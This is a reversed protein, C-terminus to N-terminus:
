SKGGDHHPCRKITHFVEITCGMQNTIKVSYTTTVKPCLIIASTGTQDHGEPDPESWLYHYQGKCHGVPGTPELICVPLPDVKLTIEEGTESCECPEKRIGAVIICDRVIVTDSRASSCSNKNFVEVCYNGGDMAEITEGSGFALGNYYWQYFYGSEPPTGCVPPVATLWVSTNFCKVLPGAPSIAPKSPPKIVPITVINSYAPPCIMTPSQVRARWCIKDVVCPDVPPYTLGFLDNTYQVPSIVGPPLSWDGDCEECDGSCSGLAYEWAISSGSLGDHTLTLAADMGWCLEAPNNDTREIGASILKEVVLRVSKQLPPSCAHNGIEVCIDYTGPEDITFRPNQISPNDFTGGQPCFWSFSDEVLPSDPDFGLELPSDFDFAPECYEYPSNLLQGERTVTIEGAKPHGWIGLTVDVANPCCGPDAPDDSVPWPTPLGLCDANVTGRFTIVQDEDPVWDILNTNYPNGSGYGYPMPSFTIGDTSYTWTVQCSPPLEDMRLKATKGWCLHTIENGDADLVQAKFVPYVYVTFTVTSAGDDARKIRLKYEYKGPSPPVYIETEPVCFEPVPFTGFSGTTLSGDPNTLRWTWPGPCNGEQYHHVCLAPIQGLCIKKPNFPPTLGWFCPGPSGSKSPLDDSEPKSKKM